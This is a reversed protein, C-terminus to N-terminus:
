ITGPPSVAPASRGWDNNPYGSIGVGPVFRAHTIQSNGLWFGWNQPMIYEIVGEHGGYGFPAQLLVPDLLYSRSPIYFMTGSSVAYQLVIPNRAIEHFSDTQLASGVFNGHLFGFQYSLYLAAPIEVTPAGLPASAHTLCNAVNQVCALTAAWQANSAAAQGALLEQQDLASWAMQGMSDYSRTGLPGTDPTRDRERVLPTDPGVRSSLDPGMGTPDTNNIPNSLMPEYRNMGPGYGAPDTQMFRGLGPSYMRAKYYYVGVEPLWLQGTYGFHGTIAGGQAAGYEDYRNATGYLNGASDSVAVISGREDAHLMRVAVSGTFDWWLMPEDPGPGFATMHRAVNGADYEGIAQPLGSEDPAYLFRRSSTPTVVQYLRGLPDYSLTATVGALTSSVLKNESDYAFTRGTTPDTTLNGDGDHSAAAGGVTLLQNLGNTTTATTGNINGTFAYADNSRAESAIEGAPNYVMPGITLDASTGALDETRGALRSVADFTNTSTTGYLRSTGTRRHLDDYTFSVLPLNNDDNISAVEGTVLRPYLLGYGSSTGLHTRRGALDYDQTVTALPGAESTQRSLADYGFTLSIGSQSASTMRGLLDHGYSVDPESGPRDKFTLRDLNDYTFSSLSGARNRRSVVNGDADYTLQEYNSGDTDAVGKNANSYYITSVRDFGDYINASLNNEGDLLYTVLGNSSYTLTRETAADATGGAVKLQTAESAADYITQSIRDPGFSGQTSLSCASAPLSGYVAPNMRTATCDSRGLADYSAQTLAYDTGGASLKSTVPRANADYSIDVAQAPAFAAWATDSQDTVTGTETKTLLANSYTNRTARLKLPGAGDPDPEIVGVLERAQDYRYRTTDASGALPGDLTLLNGMADYTMAQTATLAGGGDGSSVSIVNGNSDYSAATKVEDATGACSSGTQCQSVGTPLYEGNTLTYSTRTQPRVGGTSAAPRTVTLVGGHTPDYSYDTVHGKPDTTSTPQDCTKPNTCTAPYAATAVIDSLGSGAKAVMRQETVNGRADYTLASSNGEPLTTRTLRGSADYQFSTTRNLEDRLATPRGITLDSTVVRSHSLPDTVTMTATTGSVTRAYTHTVGEVTASTVQGGSLVYSTTDAAAGPRRIAVSTATSTARWVRGGIDTIDTVGSSPYAYGVGAQQVTTSVAANFFNAGSRQSWSAPPSNVGGTRDDDYAFVIQYGFSNTVSKLRPTYDCHTPDNISPPQGPPTQTFCHTWFEYGLTVLKGNPSTISTPYLFCIDASGDRCLNSTDAPPSDDMPENNTFAIVTGDPLTYQYSGGGGTLTVGRSEAGPFKDNRIGFDVFTGSGPVNELMIHDWGSTGATGGGGLNGLLRMLKLEGEGSGISGELFSTVLDGQVLDVGNEDLQRFQPSTVSQALAPTAIATTALLACTLARRSIRFTM